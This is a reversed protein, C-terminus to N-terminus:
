CILKNKYLSRAYLLMGLTLLLIIIDQICLKPGLVEWRQRFTFTIIDLILQSFFAIGFSQVAWRSRCFLLVSGIVTGWVGLIFLLMLPIPYNTFYAIQRAGYGLYEFYATNHTLTMINDYAGVLSLLGFIGAIVRLRVLSGLPMSQPEIHQKM